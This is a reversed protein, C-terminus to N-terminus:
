LGIEIMIPKHDSGLANDFVRKDVVNMGEPALIYDLQSNTHKHTIFGSFINQLKRRKFIKKFLIPEHVLYRKWSGLFIRFLYMYWNSLVNLDGSIINRGKKNRRSLVQTFLQLRTWPGVAADLHVNFFRIPESYEGKESNILFEVDAYMFEQGERWRLLWAPFTRVEKKYPFAQFPKKTNAMPHKSIIVLYSLRDSHYEDVAKVIFYSDIKELRQFVKPSVEQLCVVDAKQEDIFAIIDDVNDNDVYVNWNLVKIRMNYIRKVYSMKFCLHVM